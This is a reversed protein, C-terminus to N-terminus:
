LWNIVGITGPELNVTDLVVIESEKTNDYWTDIGEINDLNLRCVKYVNDDIYNNSCLERAKVEDCDIRVIGYHCRENIGWDWGNDKTTILDGKRDTSGNNTDDTLQVLFEM